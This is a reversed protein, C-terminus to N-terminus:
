GELSRQVRKKVQRKYEKRDDDSRSFHLAAAQQNLHTVPEPSPEKSLLQVLQNLLAAPTKEKPEITSWLLLTRLYPVGPASPRAPHAPATSPPVPRPPPPPPPPPPM